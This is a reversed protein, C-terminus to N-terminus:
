IEGDEENLALRFVKQRFMTSYRTNPNTGNGLAAAVYYFIATAVQNDYDSVEPGDPLISRPVGSDKMEAVADMIWASLDNKDLENEIFEPINGLRANTLELLNPYRVQAM